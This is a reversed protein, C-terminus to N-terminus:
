AANPSEVYYPPFLRGVPSKPLKGIKQLSEIHHHRCFVSFRTAHEPCGEARCMIDSPEFTTRACYDRMVASYIMMGAPQQYPESEWDSVDIPPVQFLYEQDAFNWEHGSQWHQGCDPCRFLYLRLETHGAIKTLRKRIAPSQKIRRNISERDLEIPQFQTCDCTM